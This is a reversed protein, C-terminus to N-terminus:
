GLRRTQHRAILKPLDQLRSLAIAQGPLAGRARFAFTVMGAAIGAQVGPLSDEVVACRDPSIGMANAAHLFLRPDPKWYGIDYASFIRNEFWPLLGTVRLSLEIKEPPGSSAVCFPVQLAALTEAAGEVAQLDRRFRKAMRARLEPVFSDPLERGLRKQMDDVCDAMRGGVYNELAEDISIPVGLETAYEVLTENALLESDVLTGDCDFIVADISM